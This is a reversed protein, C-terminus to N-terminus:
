PRVALIPFVMDSCVTPRELETGLRRASRFPAPAPRTSDKLADWTPWAASAAGAAAGARGGTGGNAARACELMHVTGQVNTSMYDMPREISPVIDGIGAFHFVYSVGNFFADGPQFDRIDGRHFTVDNKAHHAINAERGGVLNDIVRVQYNRDILLDVMHSGIFGAGGTVIAIKREGTM